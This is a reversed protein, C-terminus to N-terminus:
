DFVLSVNRRKKQSHGGELGILRRARTHERIWFRKAIRKLSIMKIYRAGNTGAKDGHVFMM